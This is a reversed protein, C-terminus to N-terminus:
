LPEGLVSAGVDKSAPGRRDLDVIESKGAGHACVINIVDNGIGNNNGQRLLAPIRFFDDVKRVAVLRVVALSVNRFFHEGPFLASNGVTMEDETAEIVVVLYRRSDEIAPHPNQGLHWAADKPQQLVARSGCCVQLSFCLCPTDAGITEDEGLAHRQAIVESAM